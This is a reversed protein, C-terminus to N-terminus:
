VFGLVLIYARIIVGPQDRILNLITQLVGNVSTPDRVVKPKSSRSDNQVRCAVSDGKYRVGVDPKRGNSTRETLHNAM